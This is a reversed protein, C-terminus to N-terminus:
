NEANAWSFIVRIQWIIYLNPMRKLESKKVSVRVFFVKKKTTQGGDHLLTQCKTSIWNYSIELHNTIIKGDNTVLVNRTSFFTSSNRWIYQPSSFFLNISVFLFALAPASGPSTFRTFKWGGKESGGQKKKKRKGWINIPELVNNCFNVGWKLIRSGRRIVM